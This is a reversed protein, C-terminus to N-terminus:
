FLTKTIKAVGDLLDTIQADTPEVKKDHDCLNRIDGLFQISRWQPIDVVGGDKLQDNLYSISPNKKTIAIGHNSCVQALHKELVVGAVAGAARQFKHNALERATELESDFLDAQVLQRIDFLSSEFRREAAALISLQQDFNSAAAKADVITRDGRTVNLGHLLDDIVYTEANLTKRNKPREYLRVFDPLRAPLVQRIVACAESYWTQYTRMFDPLSKLFTEREGKDPMVVKIKEDWDKLLMKQLALKLRNGQVILAKLDTRHRDLNSVM